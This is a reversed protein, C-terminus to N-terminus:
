RANKGTATPASRPGASGPHWGRRASACSRPPSTSSAREPQPQGRAHREEDGRQAEGGRVGHDAGDDGLDRDPEAPPMPRSMRSVATAAELSGAFGHDGIKPATSSPRTAAPKTARSAAKRLGNRRCSATAHAAAGWGVAASGSGVGAASAVSATTTRPTSRSRRRARCPPARDGRERADVERDCAPSNTESMPGDPHPLDVSSRSMASRSSGVAPSMRTNPLVARCARISWSYPMANWCAPRSGHRVTAAFMSSGSRAARRRRPRAGAGAHGLQELEDPEGVERLVVGVLEGAAHLLADRDGAREGLARPQQEHVLREAREVLHGALAHLGLQEADAGLGAGGDHEHGVRDGLRHEQGVPDDHHRRPRAPDGVYISTRSPSAASRPSSRRSSRANKAPTVATRSASCPGCADAAPAACPTSTRHGAQGVGRDRRLERRRGLATAATRAIGAAGTRAARRAASRAAEDHEHQEHSSTTTARPCGATRARWGTPSRACSTCYAGCTSSAVSTVPALASMPSTM